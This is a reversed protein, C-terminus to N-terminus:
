IEELTHQSLYEQHTMYQAEPTSIVSNLLLKVTLLDVTPMRCDVLYNIRDGGITLRM